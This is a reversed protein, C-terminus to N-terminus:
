NVSMSQPCNTFGLRMGMGGGGGGGEGEGPLKEDSATHSLLSPGTCLRM